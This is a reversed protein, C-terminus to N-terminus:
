LAGDAVRGREVEVVLHVVQAQLAEELALRAVAGDLAERETPDLVARGVQVVAAAQRQLVGDLEEVEDQLQLQRLYLLGVQHREQAAQSPSQPDRVRLIPLVIVGEPGSGIVRRHKKAATPSLVAAPVAPAASRVASAASRGFAVRRPSTPVFVYRRTNGVPWSTIFPRSANARLCWNTAPWRVPMPAIRSATM